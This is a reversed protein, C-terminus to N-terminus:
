SVSHKTDFQQFNLVKIPLMPKTKRYAIQLDNLSINTKCATRMMTLNIVFFFFLIHLSKNALLTKSLFADRLKMKTKDDNINPAYRQKHLLKYELLDTYHSQIWSKFDIFCTVNFFFDSSSLNGDGGVTSVTSFEDSIPKETPFLDSPNGFAIATSFGRRFDTRFKKEPDSSNDEFSNQYINGVSINFIKKLNCIISIINLDILM